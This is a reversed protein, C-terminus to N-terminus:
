AIKLSHTKYISIRAGRIRVKQEATRLLQAFSLIPLIITIKFKIIRKLNKLSM